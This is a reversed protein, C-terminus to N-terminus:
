NCFREENKHDDGRAEDMRVVFRAGSANRSFHLRRSGKRENMRKRGPHYYSIVIMVPSCNQKRRRTQRRLM